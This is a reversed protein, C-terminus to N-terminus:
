AINLTETDNRYCSRGNLIDRQPCYPKPELRKLEVPIPMAVVPSCRKKGHALRQPIWSLKSDSSILFHVATAGVM